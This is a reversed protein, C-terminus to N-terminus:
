KNHGDAHMSDIADARFRKRIVYGLLWLGSLGVLAYIIRAIVVYDGTIFSVFNWNFIGVLLWNIAGIISLILAILTIVM